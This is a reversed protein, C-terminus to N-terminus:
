FNNSSLILLCMKAKLALLIVTPTWHCMTHTEETTVERDGFSNMSLRSDLGANELAAASAVHPYKLKM